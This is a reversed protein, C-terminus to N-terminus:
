IQELMAKIEDGAPGALQDRFAHMSRRATRRRDLTGRLRTWLTDDARHAATAFTNM